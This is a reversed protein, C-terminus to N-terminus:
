HPPRKKRPVLRTDAETPPWPSRCGNLAEEGETFGCKGRQRRKVPSPKAPWGSTARSSFPSALITALTSNARTPLWRPMSPTASRAIGIRMVASATARESRIFIQFMTEGFGFGTPRHGEALTGVMLDLQEVDDRHGLFTVGAGEAETM